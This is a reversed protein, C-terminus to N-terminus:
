SFAFPKLVGGDVVGFKGNSDIFLSRNPLQTSAGATVAANISYIKVGNSLTIDVKPASSEHALQVESFVANNSQISM